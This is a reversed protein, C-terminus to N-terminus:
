SYFTASAKAMQVLADAPVFRTGTTKSLTDLREVIESIGRQDAYRCLGLRFPPFGAGMVMAIDLYEPKEVVGESICRAAENVMILILRDLIDSSSISKGSARHLLASIEPNPTKGSGVHTYFGKGSKKGKLTDNQHIRDFSPAVAMREGFGAELIKAVKYGVDLGVEDALALPGLPLGFGEMIRDIDGIEAGDELLWVAENVYPILIRNVLFGPGNKVVIPTKKLTKALQVVTAITDQSTKEGPIVEVLPMRNVPSFFHMGIFREPHMLGSAMETVSLSSTNSAIVADARLHTELEGFVKKKIEMNEVVAEIVVDTAGFGLYDTTSSIANLGLEAESRSIKRSEVLKKYIKSASQYALNIANWNVDKIRVAIAKSSLLWAIGGGMLGAGIVGSHRVPRAVVGAPVGTYKKLEEQIFFLAILNKSIPTGVLESFRHAEQDLGDALSLKLGEVVSRIAAFPAPYHGLTKLTVARRATSAVMALGFPLSEVWQGKVKSQRLALIRQRGDDSGCEKCFRAVESRFFASSVCRDALGLKEAKYGDVSGGSIIMPLAAQIGILRPLRQTGGFGPIIGLNVEPLGLQTKPNDSVIRFSCALGLELGGGLAAGDIAAVTPVPFAALQDFIAQGGRAKAYGDVPTDISQIETIDAGAVFVDTKASVIVLVRLDSATKAQAIMDSLESLAASSLKNIKEGPCDFTLWGIGQEISLSFYHAM